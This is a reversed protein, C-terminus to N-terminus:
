KLVDMAIERYLKAARLLQAKEVFEDVTHAQDLSGPGIIVTASGAEVLFCQECSAGFAQPAEKRENLKEAQEVCASVFPHAQVVEGGPMFFHKTLEFGVIGHADLADQVLKRTQPETMGPLVRFDVLLRVKGPVVNDKEYGQVMTVVISPSPLVDHTMSELQKNLEEIAIVARAAKAVATEETSRLAAHCAHGLLDIYYRGVGRHAIAVHLDTPEGLITYTAAKYSDLFAHMGLNADEEDAVFTLRIQGNLPTKDHFMSIAASCMAAVGGKMDCAGRGYILEGEETTGIATHQWNGVCPVVDLHGSYELIKDGEGFSAIFNARNDGLDQVECPIGERDFIEKLCLAGRKENGPPNITDQAMLAEFIELTLADNIM